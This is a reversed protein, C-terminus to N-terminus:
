DPDSEAVGLLDGVIGNLVLLTLVSAQLIKALLVGIYEVLLGSGLEM